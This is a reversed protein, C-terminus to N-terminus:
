QYFQYSNVDETKDENDKVDNLVYHYIYKLNIFQTLILFSGATFIIDQDEKNFQPKMFINFKFVLLFGVYLQFISTFMPMKNKLYSSGIVSSIFLVISIINLINFLHYHIM